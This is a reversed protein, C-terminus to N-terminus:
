GRAGAVYAATIPERPASFFAGTPAHEVLRGADGDYWFLAVQDALRRAQALEHTVLVITTRGRLRLLSEEVVAAALPDLSSCPEDLLLVEPELVLARALCLRQQQGGSLALASEDLRDRVENWLGVEVLAREIRAAREARDGLHHERLPLDLNKRISFAFPQPRQFLMGVRRRLATVDTGPARVDDGGIRLTGRVASGPILDILRNMCHLVSTKGCGSPGVIATTSGAPIALTVDRVAPREGYDIGLADLEITAGNM